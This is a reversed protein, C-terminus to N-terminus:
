KKEVRQRAVLLREGPECSNKSILGEAAIIDEPTDIRISEHETEWVRIPLGRELARFQSKNLGQILEPKLAKSEASVVNLHKYPHKGTLIEYIVCSLGYVDDNPQPDADLMMELTAYAETKAGLIGPDFRTLERDQKKALRAIGFDIVKVEGTEPNYFVNSPKFDLHIVGEQHSYELADCMGKIIPRAQKISVGDPHSRIFKDLSMGPLFEMVIFLLNEDRNLEYARVLNPHILKKYRAFERVLAKLAFEKGQFEQNLFKIAVFRDHSEGADQILDLAKWVEGMGGEGIKSVLRYTDRIVVNPELKKEQGAKHWSLLKNLLMSNGTMGPSDSDLSKRYKESPDKNSSDHSSLEAKSENINDVLHTKCDSELLAIKNLLSEIVSTSLGSNQVFKQLQIFFEESPQDCAKILDDVQQILLDANLEGDNFAKTLKTLKTLENLYLTENM